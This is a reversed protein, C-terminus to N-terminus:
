AAEIRTASRASLFSLLESAPKPPCILYGQGEQCRQDRLFSLQEVTEIGEAVVNIGLDRSLEILSRVIATCTADKLLDRVFSRDIKITDPVLKRLYTLSSYETGFDDLAIRIGLERLSKLNSIVRETDDILATETIEIEVREYALTTQALANVVRSVLSPDRLQRASVNVAIRIDQPWAAAAKCAEHITWEGIDHILGTEELIRIFETPFSRWAKSPEM